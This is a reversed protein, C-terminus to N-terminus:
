DYSSQGLGEGAISASMALAVAVVRRAPALAAWAQADTHYKDQFAPPVGTAKAIAYGEESMMKQLRYTVDHIAKWAGDRKRLEPVLWEECTRQDGETLLYKPDVAAM